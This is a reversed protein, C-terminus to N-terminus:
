RDQLVRHTYVSDPLTFRITTGAGPASQLSITGGHMEVISKTIRLGLGLGPIARQLALDARFFRTFAEAQEANNMGIGTDQITCLLDEGETWARVTVTGGDPSYKIANSILNDLLQGIRGADGVVPMPGEVSNHLTVANTIAAPAAAALSHAVLQAFDTPAPRFMMSKTALLDNVLGLLREANREIVALSSTIEAPLDQGDDMILSAYGLISSLPIRFEHSVRAVFDDKAALAALMDTIDHFAIVAGDYNGDADKMTRATTSFARARDDSGVWIQYDTFSGGLVARRVPRDEAGM